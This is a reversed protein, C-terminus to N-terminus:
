ATKQEPTHRQWAVEGRRLVARVTSDGFYYPIERYDEADFIVLDAQRGKAIIGARDGLGMAWAGNVTAACFVEEPSMKMQTCGLAMVFQMNWCPSTGPNFDTALAVPLGGDIMARAPPYKSLGLFCNSAPLLTAIVGAKALASIDQPECYDAHDISIAGVRVAADAGGFRCLQEGHVKPKLGLARGAALVRVTQDVDFYNKECFVDCFSALKKEAARPLIEEIVHRVYKETDGTFEPPVSHAALLTSVVDAKVRAAAKHIVALGKLESEMDLGYGTKAELSTTGCAIFRNFRQVLRKELEYASANRVGTISSIIGGGGAKIEAYTAGRLRLQFDVLRPEAFVPHTHSDCFGPTVVGGGANIVYAHESLPHRAAEESAGAFAIKEGEIIVAAKRRLGLDSMFRGTRPMLPGDM